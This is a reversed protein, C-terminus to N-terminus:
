KYEMMLEKANDQTLKNLFKTRKGKNNKRALFQDFTQSDFYENNRLSELVQTAAKDDVSAITPNHMARMQEYKEFPKSTFQSYIEFDPDLRRKNLALGMRHGHYNKNDYWNRLTKNQGGYNSEEKGINTFPTRVSFRTGDMKSARTIQDAVTSSYISSKSRRDATQAGRQNGVDGYLSAYKDPSRMYNKNGKSMM